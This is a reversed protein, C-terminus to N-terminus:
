EAINFEFAGLTPAKDPLREAGSIDKGGNEEITAGAGICPSGNQLRFGQLAVQLPSRQAPDVFLPDDRCASIDHPANEHRGYYLNHSFVTNEAEGYDYTTEGEVYFINNSFTTDVPWPGGWNDMKLLTRDVDGQPKKDIYITNNYIHTDECPGSIHFTPSFTDARTPQRRIGDNVSLNYRVVTGKNGINSPMKANGNNCILLFGGENDHSYNYQILTNRCNWDSDFGQADWPAKHDSVENFQIVTNDCSWTWIGAAAEGPPLLRTCDRMVNREVLAGDCSNPVIGDGPVQEILNNRIVVNLNPYWDSRNSYGSGTIANRECRVIRCDEILFGDFRSKARKGQNRYKIASGGGQKKILSGNVDHIYLSKLHIHSATGFDDIHVYVGYRSAERQNGRNTVELNNIEWCEVNYLYLAAQYEGAAEIRPKAGDGYMGVVIADTKGDVQTGSGQPKLQGRYRTGARFLIRDGPQFVISNVRDLTRWAAQASAGTSMDSGHVGDVYYTEAIASEAGASLALVAVLVIALRKM